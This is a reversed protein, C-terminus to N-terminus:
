FIAINADLHYIRKNPKNLFEINKLLALSTFGLQFHDSDDGTGMEIIAIIAHGYQIRMKHDHLDCMTCNALNSKSNSFSPKKCLFSTFDKESKFSGKLVYQLM